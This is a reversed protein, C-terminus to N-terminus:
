AILDETIMRAPRLMRIRVNDVLPTLELMWKHWNDVSWLKAFSEISDFELWNIIHGTGDAWNSFKLASEKTMKDMIELYEKYKKALGKRWGIFEAFKRYRSEEKPNDWEMMLVVSLVIGTQIIV